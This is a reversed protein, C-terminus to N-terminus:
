VCAGSHHYVPVLTGENRREKTGENRREKTARM